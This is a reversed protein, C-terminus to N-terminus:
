SHHYFFWGSSPFLRFENDLERDDVALVLRLNEDFLSVTVIVVGGAGGGGGGGDDKGALAAASSALM